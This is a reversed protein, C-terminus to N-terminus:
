DYLMQLTAAYGALDVLNDRKHRNRERSLKVCLMFVAVEYPTLQGAESGRWANFIDATRQFDQKPHGYAIARDGGVILNAEELVNAQTVQNGLIDIESIGARAATDKEFMAGESRSSGPLMLIRDCKMLEVIDRRLVAKGQSTLTDVTTTKNKRDMEIPSVPTYGLKRLKRSAADFAAANGNKYGSIPGSIYVRLRRLRRRGLRRPKASNALGVYPKMTLTAQLGPM